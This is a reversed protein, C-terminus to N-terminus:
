PRQLCCTPEYRTQMNLLSNWRYIWFQKQPPKGTTRSSSCLIGLFSTCPIGPEMFDFSLWSIQLDLWTHQKIDFETWSSPSFVKWRPWFVSLFLGFKKPSHLIRRYWWFSHGSPMEEKELRFECKCERSDLSDLCFPEFEWYRYFPNM